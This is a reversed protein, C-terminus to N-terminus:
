RQIQTHFPGTAVSEIASGGTVGTVGASSGAGFLLRVEVSLLATAFLLDCVRITTM